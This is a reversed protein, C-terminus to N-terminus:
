SFFFVVLSQHRDTNEEGEPVKVGTTTNGVTYSSPIMCVPQLSSSVSDRKGVGERENAREGKERERGRRERKRERERGSEREREVSM